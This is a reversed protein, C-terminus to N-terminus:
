SKRSRHKERECRRQPFNRALQCLFSESFPQHQCNGAWGGLHPLPTLLTQSPPHPTKEFGTRKSM